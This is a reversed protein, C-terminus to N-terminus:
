DKHELKEGSETSEKVADEGHHDDVSMIATHIGEVFHMYQVYAKVYERGAEVSKDKNKEAQQVKDFKEKIATAFHNQLKGIMEDASGKALSDDALAVIPDPAVDKIGTYPEGEGARHIRVVTEFFYNDALEKAEPSLKRVELTKQFDKTIEVEDGKQVWILIHKIDGDELSKKASEIVPGNMTDCHSFSKSIGTLSFCLILLSIISVFYIKKNYM